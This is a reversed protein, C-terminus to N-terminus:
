LGKDANTARSETTVPGIFTIILTGLVSSRPCPAKLGKPRRGRRVTQFGTGGLSSDDAKSHSTYLITVLLSASKHLILLDEKANGNATRRAVTETAAV